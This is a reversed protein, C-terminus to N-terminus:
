VVWLAPLDVPLRNSKIYRPLIGQHQCTSLLDRMDGPADAKQTPRGDSIAWDIRGHRPCGRPRRGEIAMPEVGDGQRAEARRTKTMRQAPARAPAGAPAISESKSMRMSVRGALCGLHQCDIAPLCVAVRKALTSLWDWAAPQPPM